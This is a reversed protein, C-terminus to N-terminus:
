PAYQIEQEAAEVIYCRVTDNQSQSDQQGNTKGIHTQLGLSKRIIKVSAKMPFSSTGTAIANDFAEKSDVAVLAFAAKERIFIKFSGTADEIKVQFWLRTGDANCVEETAMDPPCVRCWNIQWFIVDVEVAAVQTKSLNSQM